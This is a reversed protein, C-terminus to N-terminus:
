FALPSLFSWILMAASSLALALWAVREFHECAAVSSKAISWLPAAGACPVPTTAVRALSRKWSERREHPQFPSSLRLVLTPKEGLASSCNTQMTLDHVSRQDLM